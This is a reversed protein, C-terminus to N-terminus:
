TPMHKASSALMNGSTPPTYWNAFFAYPRNKLKIMPHIVQSTPLIVEDNSMMAASSEKSGVFGGSMFIANPIRMSMKRVKIAIRPISALVTKSMKKAPTVKSTTSASNIPALM